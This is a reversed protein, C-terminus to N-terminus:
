NVMGISTSNVEMAAYMTVHLTSASSSFLIVFDAKIENVIGTVLERLIQLIFLQRLRNQNRLTLYTSTIMAIIVHEYKHNFSEHFNLTKIDTKDIQPQLQRGWKLPITISYM